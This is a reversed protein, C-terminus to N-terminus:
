PTAAAKALAAALGAQTEPELKGGARTVYFVDMAKHAETDVLVLEINCGAASIASTLDYLLGPRDEGVFDILTCQDSAENNFRFSPSIKAGSSPRPAARRRKLLDSV